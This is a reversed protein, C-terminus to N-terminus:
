RILIDQIGHLREVLRKANLIKKGGRGVALGKDQFEVSIVAIKRGDRETIEVTKVKAPLFTNKLFEVPDDSHEVVEIGKGMVRRARKVKAGERGIALGVDGRNVVFTISGGSPDIVCDRVRAGTLSEFLAIYRMEDASIRITM